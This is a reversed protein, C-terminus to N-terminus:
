REGMLFTGMVHLVNGFVEMISYGYDYFRHQNNDDDPPPLDLIVPGSELSGIEIGKAIHRYHGGYKNHPIIDMTDHEGSSPLNGVEMADPVDTCFNFTGIIKQDIVLEGTYRNACVESYRGDDNPSIFKLNPVKCCPFIMGIYARVFAVPVPMPQHYAAAPEPNLKWLRDNDDIWLTNDDPTPKIKGSPLENLTNRNKM